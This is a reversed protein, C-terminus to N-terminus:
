PSARLFRIGAALAVISALGALLGLVLTPLAWPPLPDVALGFLIPLLVFSGLPVFLSATMRLFGEAYRHRRVVLVAALVPFLGLVLLPWGAPSSELTVIALVALAVTLLAGVSVAM